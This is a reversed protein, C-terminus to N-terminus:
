RLLLIVIAVAELIALLGLWMLINYINTINGKALGLWEVLRNENIM